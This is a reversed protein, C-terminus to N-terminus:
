LFLHKPPCCEEFFKGKDTQTNQDLYDNTVLEEKIVNTFKQLYKQAEPHEDLAHKIFGGKSENKLECEPCCYFLFEDLNTVDWPSKETVDM